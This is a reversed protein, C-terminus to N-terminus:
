FYITVWIDMGIDRQDYQSNVRDKKWGFIGTIGATVTGFDYNLAPEVRYEERDSQLQDGYEGGTIETKQRSRAVNLSTTLDSSFRIRWGDGFPLPISFGGPASFSYQIMFSLNNSSSKTEAETGTFNKTVTNSLNDSFTIRIGNKLTGNISLLPYWSNTVTNSYPTYIDNEFRGSEVTECRISSSLTGSQLFDSFGPLRDLGSWSLTFYPWTRQLNKNWFGSYLDKTSTSSYELRLSLTSVPRFGGSIQYNETRSRSWPIEGELITELGTMYDWGPLFNMNRYESGETVSYVFTPNTILNASRELKILFWRPTWPTAEEDLREDRLRAISRITHILGLTVTLRGTRTVSFQPAGLSDKGSATHPALRSSSYNVDWSVRPKLYEFFNIEQSTVVSQSRSIENGLNVGTGYTRPFLLDRNSALSISTSQGKWFNFTLSGGTSFINTTTARTRVTDGAAYSWASNWSNSRGLTFTFRTPRLRFYEMIPLTFLRMTRFSLNYSLQGSGSSTSDSTTPSNGTSRTYSHVLTFPDLLYKAAQNESNSNKRWQFGTSWSRNQTRDLWAEEGSLRYDSGAQFRPEKINLSWAFTAPMSLSWLPPTFRHLNLTAGTSVTTSAHGSGASSGLGHFNASMYRYDGSLLLLDAIDFNVTVRHATGTENHPDHLTIDDVWVETNLLEASQNAIGLTMEMIDALNPSGRVALNGSEYYDLELEDKLRKIDVLDDLIINVVQWGVSVDTRIEYYNLSDRGLRYFVVGDCNADGHVLYEISAYGTFDESSFLSKTASGYQGSRLDITKLAISQEIKPEGYEDEGPDVGPPPDNYYDPNDRNNVISVLFEETGPIPVGISDINRIGDVEWSNGVIAFDYIQITDAQTFNDVWIRSYSIKEWTPETSVFDPVSVLTSDTLPIEILMWGHENPGSIIYEPDNVPIEIRFFSNSEDLIGNGNLDETDLVNNVETGNIKEYREEPPLSSDYYYDDLNPDSEPSGPLEDISFLNDLGTDEDDSLVGNFNLDETDLEGNCRRDLVGATRELWYSDENIWEGLDLYLSADQACGTTRLYLRIHTKKSFDSGYKDFCRMVGGWSAYNNNEPEFYFELVGNVWEDGENGHVEPVIDDMQWRNETNYWRLEGVPFLLPSANHPISSLHWSGRSQGFPFSSEVGEMDDVYVYGDVNSNPISMALESSLVIRSESETCIGPITNAFDTLFEPHTEFHVDIDAIFTRTNEDGLTPRDNPTSANEFMATAGIWSDSGINYKLRTGFLMRNMSAFFPIYEYNVRLTNAPNQALEAAEGILTLTGIEYIITYDVNRVLTQAVGAVMLIVTESNPIINIRGLSYTTSAARYSVKIFYMSQAPLPDREDYIAPNREDLVPDDFPRIEPFILFGNEWDVANEEDQLSGDGNTDLGLLEIFPVGNQSQVPEEGARTLYIGCDFSDQVIKNSGLFYRNRLEYNWTAYSPLPNSQKILKLEWGSGSSMSGTTDGMADVMWIAIMYNDNIPSNFQIVTSSDTLIFDRDQGAIKEDWYGTGWLTDGPAEPVFWTAQVAGTEENNSGDLDDVFVRISAIQNSTVSDPVTLYFYNNAPYIDLISDEEMTAQGVFESSETAGAEKSAILTIDLPGVQGLVKMGFLGNHPISYSVFEPGQISLSVDGLDVIQVIEDDDGDYTLRVTSEPTLERESDHDVSVHIKEGITGDLNVRLVQEMKLDPFLSQSGGEYEIMNPRYHTVGSLTLKQYGSIDLQGGEGIAGALVDPMDLPLYITPILDSGGTSTRLCYSRNVALWSEQLSWDLIRINMLDSLSSYTRSVPIENRFMRWSLLGERFSPVLRFTLQSTYLMLVPSQTGLTFDSLLWPSYVGASAASSVPAYLLCFLFLYTKIKM